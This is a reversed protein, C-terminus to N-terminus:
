PQSLVITFNETQDDARTIPTRNEFYLVKGSHPNASPIVISSITGSASSSLGTVTEGSIFNGRVSSLKLDSNSNKKVIYATTNSTSGKIQENSTFTGTVGSLTINTTNDYSTLNLVAGNAYKPEVMLGSIRFSNNTLFTNSENGTLKINMIVNYACLESVANSGHGGKPSIYAKISAGSGSNGSATVDVFSYNQGIDVPVISSIAGSSVSSYASAGTGDGSINITPNINYVSTGNPNVSWNTDVYATRNPGDYSTIKRVQGIGTGSSIYISYNVYYGSVASAGSELKISSSDALQVVGTASRYSTGGSVISYSNISSNAAAQQVSWQNTGDDTDIVRAPIHNLTIFKNSEVASITYMYKWTYGDSTTVSSNSRGTPQITSPSNKNNNLCKYVNYDTTVVYYDNNVYFETDDTYNKYVTGYIWDKRKIAYSVNSIEVKKLAIIDKWLDLNSQKETDIAVDPTAENSWPTTKAIFFYVNHSQFNNYFLDAIQQKQNRTLVSSM